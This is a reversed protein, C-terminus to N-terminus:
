TGVSAPELTPQDRMKNLLECDRIIDSARLHETPLLLEEKTKHESSWQMLSERQSVFLAEPQPKTAIDALQFWTPIKHISIKGQRVFERFHHMRVNIHRTRPLMKPLRAMEYAGSNDEYVRCHDVDASNDEFAKCQITPRSKIIKWQLRAKSEELLQLLFIVDKLAESLAGYEAETTLLCVEKQLKSAWVMPCGGYLVQYGTRSKATGPDMAADRKDFDAFDADVFCDFSHHKPDLIIGKDATGVLYRVIRKVAEAHSKKPAACFRACQHVSYSLDCRTSKELFNLKGIVSRYDWQESFQEGDVDRHLRVTSAAPTSKTKTKEKSFGVDAIIQDILHPQSLKITGNELPEIKVGLYDALTGEDTMNFARVREGTATVFENSLLEYVDNLDEMKLGIMIGDDVYILLIM